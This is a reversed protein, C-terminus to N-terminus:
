AVAVALGGGERGGMAAPGAAMCDRVGGCNSAIHVDMGSLPANSQPTDM